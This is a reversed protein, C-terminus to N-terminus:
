ISPYLMSKQATTLDGADKSASNGIVGQGQSGSNSDGALNLGNPKVSDAGAEGDGKEPKPVAPPQPTPAPSASRAKVEKMAAAFTLMACSINASSATYRRQIREM